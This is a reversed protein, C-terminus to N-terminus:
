EQAENDTAANELTDGLVVMDQGIGQITNCATLFVLASLAAIFKM